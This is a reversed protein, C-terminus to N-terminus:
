SRNGRLIIRANVHGSRGARNISLNIITIHHDRELLELWTIFPKFEVADLQISLQGGSQPIVRTLASGLGAARATQDVQTLLSGKATVMSSQGSANLRKIERAAERMWSLEARQEAVNRRLRHNANRFPEWVLTYLLLALTLLIGASILVRERTNLQLWWAKM